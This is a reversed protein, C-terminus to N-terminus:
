EGKRRSELYYKYKPMDGYLAPFVEDWRGDEMFAKAVLEAFHYDRNGTIEEICTEFDTNNVEEGKDIKARQEDMLDMIKLYQSRTVNCEFLLGSVSSGEALLELRFELFDIKESMIKNEDRLNAIEMEYNM